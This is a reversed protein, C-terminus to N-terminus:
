RAQRRVLFLRGSTSVKWTRANTYDVIEMFGLDVLRRLEDVVWGSGSKRNMNLRMAVDRRTPPVEKLRCLKAVVTLVTIQRETPAEPLSLLEPLYPPPALHPHFTAM